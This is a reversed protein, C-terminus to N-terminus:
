DFFYVGHFAARLKEPFPTNASSACKRGRLVTCFPMMAISLSPARTAMADVGARPADPMWCIRSPTCSIVPLGMQLCTSKSKLQGEHRLFCTSFGAYMHMWRM